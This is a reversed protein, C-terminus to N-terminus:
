ESSMAEQLRAILESKKGSVKLGQERCLEKLEALSLVTVDVELGTEEEIENEISEELADSLLVDGEGKDVSDLTEEVIDSISDAVKDLAKDVDVEVGTADEIADEIEDAVKNKNESWWLGVFTVGAAGAVVIFEDTYETAQSAVVSLLTTLGALTSGTIRKTM